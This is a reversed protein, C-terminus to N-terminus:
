KIASLKSISQYGICVPIGDYPDNIIRADIQFLDRLIDEKMIRSPKGEAIVKGSKMAIMHDSFRAAHNIDHLVMVITRHEELNM